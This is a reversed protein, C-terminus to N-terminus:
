DIGEHKDPRQNTAQKKDEANHNKFINQARNSKKFENRSQNQNHNM